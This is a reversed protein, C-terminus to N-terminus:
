AVGRGDVGPYNIDGKYENVFVHVGYGDPYFNGEISACHGNSSPDLVYEAGWLDGYVTAVVGRGNAKNDCVTIKEWSPHGALDADFFAAGAGGDLLALGREQTSGGGTGARGGRSHRGGGIGGDFPKHWTM